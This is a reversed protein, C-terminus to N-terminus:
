RCVRDLERSALSTGKRMGKRQHQCAQVHKSLRVFCPASLRGSTKAEDRAFQLTQSMALAIDWTGLRETAAPFM